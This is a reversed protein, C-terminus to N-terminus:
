YEVDWLDLWRRRQFDREEEWEEEEKKKEHSMVVKNLEEKWEQNCCENVVCKAFHLPKLRHDVQIYRDIWYTNRDSDLYSEIWHVIAAQLEVDATGLGVVFTVVMNLDKVRRWEKLAKVFQARSREDIIIQTAAFYEQFSKHAFFSYIRGEIHQM